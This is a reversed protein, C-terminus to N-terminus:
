GRNHSYIKSDHHNESLQITSFRITIRRGAGTKLGTRRKLNDAKNFCPINCVPFNVTTLIEMGRKPQAVIIGHLANNAPYDYLIQNEDAIKM